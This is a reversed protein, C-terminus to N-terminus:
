VDINTIKRILLYGIVIMTLIVALTIWGFLTTFMMGMAKPELWNLAAMILLPLCSMILGQMKGQATLSRIKGEMTAKDRLTTALSELIEALNGGVERSIRLGSVVLSFDQLPNRKEMNVLATDFDVGLRQERLLLEFEQSLPPRQEKVMSEMAVNLSAGARMAGSIMLLADPLQEEFRKLRRTSLAKIYVKPLILTAIASFTVFVPNSTFLWVLTPVVVLAAMNYYFITTPDLFIFMDALTTKTSMELQSRQRALVARVGQLAIYALVFATLLGVAILLALSNM